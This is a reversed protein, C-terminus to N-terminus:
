QREAWGSVSTAYPAALPGYTYTMITSKNQLHKGPPRHNIRLTLTNYM